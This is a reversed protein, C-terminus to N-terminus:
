VHGTAARRRWYSDFADDDGHRQPVARLERARAESTLARHRSQATDVSHPAGNPTEYQEPGDSHESVPEM